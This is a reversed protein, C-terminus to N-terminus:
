TRNVDAVVWPRTGLTKHANPGPKFKASALLARNTSTGGTTTDLQNSKIVSPRRVGGALESQKLVIAAKMESRERVPFLILMEEDYSFPIYFKLVLHSSSFHNRTFSDLLFLISTVM